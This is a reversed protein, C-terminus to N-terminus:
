RRSLGDRGPRVKAPRGTPRGGAAGNRMIPEIRAAERYRSPQRINKQRTLAIALSVAGGSTIPEARRGETNPRPKRGNVKPQRIQRGARCVQGSCKPPELPLGPSPAPKKAPYGEAQSGSFFSPKSPEPYERQAGLSHNFRSYPMVRRWGPMLIYRRIFALNARM